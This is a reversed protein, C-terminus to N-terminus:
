AGGKGVAGANLRGAGDDNLKWRLASGASGGTEYVRRFYDVIITHRAEDYVEATTM